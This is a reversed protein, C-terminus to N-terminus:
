SGLENLPKKLENSRYKRRCRKGCLIIDPEPVSKANVRSVECVFGTDTVIGSYVKFESKM